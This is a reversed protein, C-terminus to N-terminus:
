VDFMHTRDHYTRTLNRTWTRPRLKLDCRLKRGVRSYGACGDRSVNSLTKANSMLFLHRRHSTDHMTAARPLLTHGVFCCGFLKLSIPMVLQEPVVNVLGTFM